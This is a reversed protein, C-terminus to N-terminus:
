ESSFPILKYIEEAEKLEKTKWLYFSECAREDSRPNRAKVSCSGRKMRRDAPKTFYPCEICSHPEGDLIEFLELVSEPVNKSATYFIYATFPISKEIIIEPNVLGSLADNLHNQFDIANNEQVVIAQKYKESRM